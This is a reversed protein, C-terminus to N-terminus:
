IRYESSYQVARDSDHPYDKLNWTDTHVLSNIKSTM